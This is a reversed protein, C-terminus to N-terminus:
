LLLVLKSFFKLNTWTRDQGHIGMKELFMRESGNHSKLRNMELGRLLTVFFGGRSHQKRSNMLVPMRHLSGHPAVVYDSFAQFLHVTPCLGSDSSKCTYARSHMCANLRHCCIPQSNLSSIFQGLWKKLCIINVFRYINIFFNKM